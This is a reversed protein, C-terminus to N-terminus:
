PKPAKGKQRPETIEKGDKGHPTNAEKYSGECKSREVGTVGHRFLRPMGERPWYVAICQDCHFCHGYGIANM